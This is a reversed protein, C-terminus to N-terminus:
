HSFHPQKRTKFSNPAAWKTIPGGTWWLVVPFGQFLSIKTIKPMKRRNEGNKLWGLEVTAPGVPPAN